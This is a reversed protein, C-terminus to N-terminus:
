STATALERLALAHALERAPHRDIDFVAREVAEIAPPSLVAGAQARYKAIVGERSIPRSTSGLPEAVARVLVTGDLKEVEIRSPRSAPYASDIAPDVLLDIRNAFATLQPDNLTGEDLQTVDFAGDRLTAAVAFRLSMQAALVSGPVYPMGVQILGVRSQFVRIRGIEDLRVGGAHLALAADISSHNTACSPYPKLALTKSLWGEGLGAVIAEVRSSDSVARCFGGDAAELITAPGTFGLSALLAAQYGSQAAHGPHLRKSMSGDANFAWLGAAQSGALGLAWLTEREPLKRLRAAAAAAGFVGCIGTLHWGRLRTADPDLAVAIRAIVEVGAIFADLLEPGSASTEQATALAAPLVGAATHVKGAPHYDDFEFAHILIGNALTARLPDTGEPCSLVVADGRAGRAVQLAVKGWPTTTGYFACGIADLLWYRAAERVEPPIRLNGSTLWRALQLTEGSGRESPLDTSVSV